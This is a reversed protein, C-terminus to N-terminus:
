CACYKNLCEFTVFLYILLFVLCAIQLFNLTWFSSWKRRNCWAYGKTPSWHILLVDQPDDAELINKDRIQARGYETAQAEGTLLEEYIRYKKLLTWIWVKPLARGGLSATAPLFFSSHILKCTESRQGPVTQLWWSLDQSCIPYPLSDPYRWVQNCDNDRAVDCPPYSREKFKRGM